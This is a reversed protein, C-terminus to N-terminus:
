AVDMLEGGCRLWRSKGTNGTSSYPAVIREEGKPGPLVARFVVM